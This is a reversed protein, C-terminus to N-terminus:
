RMRKAPATAEIGLSYRSISPSLRGQHGAMVAVRSASHLIPCTSWPAEPLSTAARLRNARNPSVHALLIAAPTLDARWGNVAARRRDQVDVEVRKEGGHFKEVPRFQDGLGDDDGPARGSGDDGGRIVGGALVANTRRHRQGPGQPEARLRDHELRMEVLVSREGPLHHRDEVLHGRQHFSKADVLGEEVDRAGATHEACRGVDAFEDAAPHPFLCAQGARDTRRRGLEDGFQRGAPRLRVAHQDHGRLVGEGEEM